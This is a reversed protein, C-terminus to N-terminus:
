VDRFPPREDRPHRRCHFEADLVERHSHVALQDDALQGADVADFVGVQDRQVLASAPQQPTELAHVYPMDRSRLVFRGVRQDVRGEVRGSRLACQVLASPMRADRIDMNTAIASPMATMPIHCNNAWVSDPRYSAACLTWCDRDSIWMPRVMTWSLPAM